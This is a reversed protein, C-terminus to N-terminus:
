SNQLKDFGKKFPSVGLQKCFSGFMLSAQSPTAADLQAINTESVFKELIRLFKSLAAENHVNVRRTAKFNEAIIKERLNILMQQRSILFDSPVKDVIRQTRTTQVESADDELLGRSSDSRFPNIENEFDFEGIAAFQEDLSHEVVDNMSLDAQTNVSNVLPSRAYENKEVITPLTKQLNKHYTQMSSKFQPGAKRLLVFTMRRKSVRKLVEDGVLMKVNGYPQSTDMSTSSPACPFQGCVQDSSSLISEAIRTCAATFRQWSSPKTFVGKSVPNTDVGVQGSVQKRPEIGAMSLLGKVRYKLFIWSKQPSKDFFTGFESQGSRVLVCGKLLIASSLWVQSCLLWDSSELVQLV